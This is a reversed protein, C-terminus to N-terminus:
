SSPEGPKSTVRLPVAYQQVVKPHDAPRRRLHSTTQLLLKLRPPFRASAFKTYDNQECRSPRGSFGPNFLATGAFRLPRALAALILGRVAERSARDSHASQATSM